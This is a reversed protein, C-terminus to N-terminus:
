QFEVETALGLNAPPFTDRFWCQFRWTEGPAASVFVSGQPLAGLDLPISFAGGPGSNQIQGPGVLRGLNGGLCLLGGSVPAFGVDQSVIFIGFQNPATDVALLTINNDAVAPSGSVLTRATRLGTNPNASCGPVSFGITPSATQFAGVDVSGSVRQRGRQDVPEFTSASGAGLAPSTPAPRLTPAPGGNDALPLLEPDIPAASTGVLDSPGFGTAAQGESVLNFGGSNFDGRASEGTGALISNSVTVGNGALPSAVAVLTVTFSCARIEADTAEITGGPYAFTSNVWEAAQKAELAISPAVDSTFTSSEIRTPSETYLDSFGPGENNRFISGDIVLPEAGRAVMGGGSPNPGPATSRNNEVTTGELRLAGTAFSSDIGATFATFAGNAVTNDRVACRRLTLAGSNVVCTTRSGTLSLGEVIVATNPAVTLASPGGAHIVTAGAGAEGILRIDQAVALAGVYTGPRIRVTDGPAAAAVAASVTCFPASPSGDAAACDASADVFLDSPAALCPAAVLLLPTLALM